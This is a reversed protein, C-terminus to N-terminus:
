DQEDPALSYWWEIHRCIGDLDPFVSAANFGCRDLDWRLDSFESAPIVVQTLCCSYAPDDELALYNDGEESYPHCTFWGAQAGIRQSIHNPRFVVVREIALVHHPADFSVHQVNETNFIWVVGDRSSSAPREVAFWLAALPNTSWDLLRTAMGHHQALALWEWDSELSRNLFPHSRRKLEALMKREAQSCREDFRLRGLRPILPYDERQGRFLFHETECLDGILELYEPLTGIEEVRNQKM